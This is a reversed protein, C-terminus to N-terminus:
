ATQPTQTETTKDETENDDENDDVPEIMSQANFTSAAVMRRYELVTMGCGEAAEKDHADMDIGDAKLERRRNTTGSRLRTAQGNANKTPDAHGRNTWFWEHPLEEHSGVDDPVIGVLALEDFWAELIIDLCDVEWDGRHHAVVPSRAM